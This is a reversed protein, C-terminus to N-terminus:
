QRLEADIVERMTTQDGQQFGIWLARITGQRDLLVTTPYGFGGLRVRAALHNRSKEFPDRYAPFGAQKDKLFAATSAQMELDSGSSGSCSVSLFQFDKQGRFHKELEVLHPFEVVCYGCWPGWYNILTVKGTIASSVIPRTDGVLPELELQDLQTGVAPSTPGRAEGSRPPFFSLYILIGVVAGLLSLWFRRSAKRPSSM